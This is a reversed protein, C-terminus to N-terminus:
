WLLKYDVTTARLTGEGGPGGTLSVPFQSAAAESEKEKDLKTIIFSNIRLQRRRGFLRGILGSM